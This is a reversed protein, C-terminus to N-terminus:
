VYTKDTRKGETIQNKLAQRRSACQHHHMGMRSHLQYVKESMQRRSESSESFGAYESSSM